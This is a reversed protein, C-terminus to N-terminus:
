SGEYWTFASDPARSLAAPRGIRGALLPRVGARRAGPRVGIGRDSVRFVVTREDAQARDARDPHGDRSYKDANTALETLIPPWATATASPRPCTSPCGSWCGAACPRPCTANPAGRLAEVLDFPRPTRRRDAGHRTPPTLLRDVLRALEGARQGIVVAAHRREADPLDDWHNTLTDAYGKIVTVPTRLEHSTVAVFLDRDDDRRHQDTIDRFTVVRLARHRAARRLHDEALPRRAAPPRAGARCAAGPVATAANLVQRRRRGTVQEAAPNWLRVKRDCDIIALGDALAAVVPGDGHVPLGAQDGYM